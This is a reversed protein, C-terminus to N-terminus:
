KSFMYWIVGVFMVAMTVIPVMPNMLGDIFSLIITLTFSLFGAIAFWMPTDAKGERRVQSFIGSLLVVMFFSFVVLPMLIPVEQAAYVFIRDVGSSFNLGSDQPLTYTPM